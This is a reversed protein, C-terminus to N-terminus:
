EYKFVHKTQHQM